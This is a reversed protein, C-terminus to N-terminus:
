AATPPRPASDGTPPRAPGETGATPSAPAGPNKDGSVLFDAVNGVLVENDADYVNERSLFDSDGLAAVNGNQVAVAYEGSKRTASFTTGESGVLAREGGATTVPAVGRMVVRGVGESLGTSADPTAYVSKFNNDNEAMNYLYGSDFAVGYQSALSTHKASSQQPRAFLLGGSVRVAPPDGVVLVRGGAETFAKVGALEDSTHGRQPNAVVYADAARLSENLSTREGRYFRVQHGNEVLTSVLPQIDDASVTNEHGVDVLVTKGAADSNMTISGSEATEDPLINNPQYQENTIQAHATSGSDAVLPAAAAGAVVLGVVAVFVALHKVVSTASM